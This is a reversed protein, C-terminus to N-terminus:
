SIIFSYNSAHICFTGQDYVTQVRSRAEAAEAASEAHIVPDIAHPNYPHRGLSLGAGWVHQGRRIEQYPQMDEQGEQAENEHEDQERLAVPDERVHQPIVVDEGTLTIVHDSKREDEGEIIFM